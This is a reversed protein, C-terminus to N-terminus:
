RASDLKSCGFPRKKEDDLTGTQLKKARRAGALGIRYLGFAELGTELTKGHSVGTKASSGEM